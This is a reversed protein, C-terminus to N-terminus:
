RAGSAPRTWGSLLLGDHGVYVWVMRGGTAWRSRTHDALTPEAAGNGDRVVAATAHRAPRYVCGRRRGGLAARAIRASAALGRRLPRRRLRDAHGHLRSAPQTGQPPGDPASQREARRPLRGLVRAARVPSVAVPAAPARYPRAGRARRAPPYRPTRPRGPQRASAGAM